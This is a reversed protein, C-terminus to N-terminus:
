GGSVGLNADAIGDGHNRRDSAIAHGHSKFGGFEGKCWEEGPTLAFTGPVFGALFDSTICVGDEGRAQAPGFPQLLEDESGRQLVREDEERAVAIPEPAGGKGAGASKCMEARLGM